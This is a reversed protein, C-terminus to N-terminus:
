CFVCIVGLARETTRSEYWPAFRRDCERKNRHPRVCYASRKAPSQRVLGQVPLQKVTKGELHASAPENIIKPAAWPLRGGEEVAAPNLHGVFALPLRDTSSCGQRNKM